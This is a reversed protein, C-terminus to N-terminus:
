LFQSEPSDARQQAHRDGNQPPEPMSVGVHFEMSILQPVLEPSASHM